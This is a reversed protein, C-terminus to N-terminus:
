YESLLRIVNNAFYLTIEDVPFDTHEIKKTFVINGDGDDCTRTTSRRAVIFSSTGLPTKHMPPAMRLLDLSLSRWQMEATANM